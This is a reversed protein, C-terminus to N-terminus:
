NLIGSIKKAVTERSFPKSMYDNFGMKTYKEKAGSVADATLAIVPTTFNSKQRLLGIAEEGGMVPMMIDMLVLDYNNNLEIKDIADKGNYCEDVEFNFTKIAKKLVKINIINDDVVLIRKGSYDLNNININISNTAESEELAKESGLKQPINIVFKTGVMKKSDIKARGGLIKILNKTISLGLGSGKTSYVKEIKLEETDSLFKKIEEDSLGNGTDVVSIILINYQNNWDINFNVKGVDTFKIANDLLNSIIQKIRQKDGYLVKPVNDSINMNFQLKNKFAKIRYINGLAEYEKRSDYDCEVVDLKGSEIKSSDLINSIIDLLANSANILDKTDDIIEPNMDEFSQIDESLGMIANLPTRLEHSTSSLFESKSEAAAIIKEREKQEYEILKIDPNEITNYMIITIFTITSTMLRINPFYKQIIAVIAGLLFVLLIPLCKKNKVKKFFVVSGILWYLINIGCIFYTYSVSPGYTFIGNTNNYYIPLIAIFIINILLYIYLFKNFKNYIKERKNDFVVLSFYDSLFYVWSILYLLYLKSFILATYNYVEYSKVFFFLPIGILIGFLSTILIINYIKVEFGNLRKKLFYSILTILLYILSVINFIFGVDM